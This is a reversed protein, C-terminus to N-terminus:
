LLRISKLPFIAHEFDGRTYLRTFSVYFLNSMVNEFAKWNEPFNTMGLSRDNKIQTQSWYSPEYLSLKIEIKSTLISSLTTWGM